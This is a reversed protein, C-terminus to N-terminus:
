IFQFKPYRNFFSALANQFVPKKIEALEALAFEVSQWQGTEMDFSRKIGTTFGDLMEISYVDDIFGTRCAYTHYLYSLEFRDKTLGPNYGFLNYTIQNIQDIDPTGYYRKKYDFEEILQQDIISLYWGPAFQRGDPLQMGNPVFFVFAYTYEDYAINKDKIAYYKYENDSHKERIVRLNNSFGRQNLLEMLINGDIKEDIPYLSLLEYNDLGTLDINDFFTEGTEICPLDGLNLETSYNMYACMYEGSSYRQPNCLAYSGHQRPYFCREANALDPRSLLDWQHFEPINTKVAPFGYEEPINVWLFTKDMGDNSAIGNVPFYPLGQHMIVSMPIDNIRFDGVQIFCIRELMPTFPTQPYLSPDVLAKVGVTSDDTIDWGVCIRENINQCKSGLRLPYNGQGDYVGKAFWSGNGDTIIELAM